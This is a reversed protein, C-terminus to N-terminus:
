HDNPGEKRAEGPDGGTVTLKGGGGRLLEAVHGVYSARMPVWSERKGM